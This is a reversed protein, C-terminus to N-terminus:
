LRCDCYRLKPKKAQVLELRAADREQRLQTAQSQLDAIKEHFTKLRASGNYFLYFGLSGITAIVIALLLTQTKMFVILRFIENYPTLEPHTV